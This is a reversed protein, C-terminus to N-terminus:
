SGHTYVDMTKEAISDWDYNKAIMSIQAQKEKETLPNSIFRSIKESLARVDGPKFFREDPLEVNRNAPIDSVVCSLGYSMAELLAIPM